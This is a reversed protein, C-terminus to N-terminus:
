TQVQCGLRKKPDTRLGAKLYEAFHFRIWDLPRTQGPFRFESAIDFLKKATRYYDANNVGFQNAGDRFLHCCVTDTRIMIKGNTLHFRLSIEPGAFGWPGLSEDCGGKELFDKKRVMYCCGVISLSEEELLRSRFGKWHVPWMNDMWQNLTVFGMDKHRGVWKEVDLADLCPKVLVGQRCTEKMRADWGPSM